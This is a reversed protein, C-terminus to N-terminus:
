PYRHGARVETLTCEEKNFVDTKKGIDKRAKEFVTVAQKYEIKKFHLEADITNGSPCLYTLIIVFFYSM